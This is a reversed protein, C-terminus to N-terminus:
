NNVNVLGQNFINLARPNWCDVLKKQKSLRSKRGSSHSFLPRLAADGKKEVTGGTSLARVIKRHELLLTAESKM